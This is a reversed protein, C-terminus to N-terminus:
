RCLARGIEEVVLSTKGGYQATASGTIMDMNQFANEPMQTSFAKSQQDSIPQGDVVYSTQAHDGQPHFFGNSDAVVGPTNLTIADALGSGTTPLTNLLSQDVDNHAAPNLDLITNSSAQVEITTTQPGAIQLSVDQTIPVTSRVPVDQEFKAFGAAAVSLHYSNMPVNNFRYTGNEDSRVSQHYNTSPNQLTVVAGVIVAGSPDVVKGGVTGSGISQALASCACLLAVAITRM